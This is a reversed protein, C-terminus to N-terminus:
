GAYSFVYKCSDNKKKYKTLRYVRNSLNLRCCTNNKIRKNTHNTKSM